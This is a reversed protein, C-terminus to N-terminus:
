DKQGPLDQSDLNKLLIDRATLAAAVVHKCGEGPYPCTCSSAFANEEFRVWTTYNGYNGDVEYTFEKRVIDGKSLFFSGHQHIRMGRQFILGSDAVENRIFAESLVSM